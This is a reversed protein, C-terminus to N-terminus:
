RTGRGECLAKLRALAKPWAQNMDGEFEDTIDQDVVLRTGEPVAQFSYNEYAPAPECRSAKPTWRHRGRRAARM